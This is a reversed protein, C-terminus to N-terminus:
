QLMQEITQKIGEKYPTRPISKIARELKGGDLVVPEETLYMMEVVERMMKDFLGLFQVMGKTVTGVKKNYDTHERLIAVIEDGTIVGSGPINWNQGYASDLLALEAM